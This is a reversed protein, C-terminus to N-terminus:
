EERVFLRYDEIEGAPVVPPEGDGAAGVACSQLEHEYAFTLEHDRTRPVVRAREAVRALEHHEPAVLCGGVPHHRSRM